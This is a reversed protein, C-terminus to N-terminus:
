CHVEEKAGVVTFNNPANEAEHLHSDYAERFVYDAWTERSKDGAEHAPAVLVFGAEAGFYLM